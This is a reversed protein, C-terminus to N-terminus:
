KLLIMRRSQVLGKSIFRYLYVGNLMVRGQHDKGDWDVSYSGATQSGHALVRIWQGLADYVILSVEATEPLQYTITTHTNAPNPFNQGLSYTEPNATSVHVNQYTAKTHPDRARQKFRDPHPNDKFFKLILDSADIDMNQNGLFPPVPGGGPWTHGGNNIRYFVVNSKDCGHYKIITVTSNDEAVRDPWETVVPDTSCNNNSAWFSPTATIPPTDSNGDSPFFLDDTGFITLTSFPRGPRCTELLFYTLGGSVGAVSAIRNSLACAAYFTMESGNSYGTAHIRWPDVRFDADVHDILRNTFAIDDHEAKYAGPVNWGTGDGGFIVDSVVLGNPYAVLFRAKDAAKNMESIQVQGFPVSSANATFGHYNIVLPWDKKGNYSNPVYLLYNRLTGDHEFSREYIVGNQAFSYFPFVLFLMASLLICNKM